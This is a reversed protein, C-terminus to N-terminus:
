RRLFIHVKGPQWDVKYGLSEALFRVPILASGNESKIPVPLKVPIGNITGADRGLTMQLETGSKEVTITKNEPRWNVTAGLASALDRVPALVRGSCLRPEVNFSVPSSNVEM